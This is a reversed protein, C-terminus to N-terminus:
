GGREVISMAAGSTLYIMELAPTGLELTVEALLAQLRPQRAPDIGVGLEGDARGAFLSRLIISVTAVLLLCLVLLTGMGVGEQFAQWLLSGGLAVVVFLTLPLTLCFF